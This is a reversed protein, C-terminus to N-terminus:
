QFGLHSCEAKCHGGHHALQARVDRQGDPTYKLSARSGWNNVRVASGKAHEGGSLSMGHGDTTNQGLM